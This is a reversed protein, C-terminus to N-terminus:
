SSINNLSQPRVSPRVYPRRRCRRRRRCVPSHDCYSVKLRRSLHALFADYFVSIGNWDRLFRVWMRLDEKCSRDLIVRRWLEKVTTSLHILHSVFSRGPLVVCSAFNLHGLLQLLDLKTCFPQSLLKEIFQLIRQVKELPLRAEMRDSDLIIGLYELCVTPGVCKDKSLPIRLRGFLLTLLGMTREGACSDPENVTLFDDLLHFITETGYNKSAIWCLAQSLTDFIKPSSRCGFVLRVYVYYLNNWKVCFYPWQSSKIPLNKFLLLFTLRAYYPGKEMSNFQKLQMTLKLM